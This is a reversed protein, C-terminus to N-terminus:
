ELGYIREVLADAEPQLDEPFTAPRVPRGFRVSFAHGGRLLRAIPVRFPGRIRVPLIQLGPVERALWLVGIKGGREGPHGETIAGEPYVILTDGRRLMARSRPLVKVGDEDAVTFSGTARLFGGLWPMRMFEDSTMIRLPLAARFFRWPLAGMLLFSDFRNRHNPALILRGAPRDPLHELGAVETRNLARFVLKCVPFLLLQAAIIGLRAM